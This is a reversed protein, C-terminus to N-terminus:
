DGRVWLLRSAGEDRGHQVPYIDVPGACRHLEGCTFCTLEPVTASGLRCPSIVRGECRARLAM